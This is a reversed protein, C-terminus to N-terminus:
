SVQSYSKMDDLKRDLARELVEKGDTQLWENFKNFGNWIKPDYTIVSGRKIGMTSPAVIILDSHNIHPLYGGERSIVVDIGPKKDEDIMVAISKKFKYSNGADIFRDLPCLVAGQNMRDYNMICLDARDLSGFITRHFMGGVLGGPYLGHLGISTLREETARAIEEYTMLARKGAGRDVSYVVIKGPMQRFTFKAAQKEEDGITFIKVDGEGNPLPWFDDWELIEELNKGSRLAFDLTYFFAFGSNFIATQDTFSTEMDYRAKYGLFMHRAVDEQDRVQKERPVNSTSYRISTRELFEDYKQLVRDVFNAPVLRIAIDRVITKESKDPIGLDRFEM